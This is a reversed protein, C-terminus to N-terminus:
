AHVTECPRGSYGNWTACLQTSGNFRISQPVSAAYQAGQIASISPGTFYLTNTAWLFANTTQSHDAKLTTSWGTIVLGSGVVDLCVAGNCGHANQPTVVASPVADDAGLGVAPVAAVEALGVGHMGPAIGFAALEQSTYSELPKELRVVTGDPLNVTYNPAASAPVVAAVLLGITGVAVLLSQRFRAWKNIM